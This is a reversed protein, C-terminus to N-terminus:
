DLLYLVKWILKYRQRICQLNGKFRKEKNLILNMKFDFENDNLYMMM